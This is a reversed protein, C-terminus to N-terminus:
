TKFPKELLFSTVYIYNKDIRYCFFIILHLYDLLERPRDTQIINAGRDLIWQWSDAKNNIDVPNKCITKSGAIHPTIM